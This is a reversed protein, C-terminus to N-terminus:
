RRSTRGQRLHRRASRPADLMEQRIFATGIRKSSLSYMLRDMGQAGKLDAPGFAHGLEHALTATDAGDSTVIPKVAHDVKEISLRRSPTQLVEPDDPSDLNSVRIYM